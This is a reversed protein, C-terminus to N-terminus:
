RMVVRCGYSSSSKEGTDTSRLRSIGLVGSAISQVAGVRSLVQWEFKNGVMRGFNFALRQGDPSWEAGTFGSNEDSEYLKRAQQGDPRMTWMERGEAVRSRNATFAVWSGDRSVSWAKADQRLKRPPGGAMPVM